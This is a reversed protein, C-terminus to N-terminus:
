RGEQTLRLWAMAAALAVGFAGDPRVPLDLDRVLSDLRLDVAHKSAAKIKRDYYLSSVEIRENPLPSGILREAMAASFDLFYGVLPRDGIFARLLDGAEGVGTDCGPWLRLASGTLIRNGRIRIAVIQRLEAVEPDYGTAECHIAVREPLPM